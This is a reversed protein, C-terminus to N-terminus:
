IPHRGVICLSMRLELECSGLDSRWTSGKRFRLSARCLACGVIHWNKMMMLVLWGGVGGGHLFVFVHLTYRTAAAAPPSRCNQVAWREEWELVRRCLGVCGM